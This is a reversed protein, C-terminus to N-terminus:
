VGIEMEKVHIGQLGGWIHEHTDYCALRAGSTDAATVEITYHDSVGIAGRKKGLFTCVFKKM